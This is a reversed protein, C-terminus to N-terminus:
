RSTPARVSILPEFIRFDPLNETLVPTGYRYAQAAILVDRGRLKAGTVGKSRAHEAVRGYATTAALDFELWVITHDFQTLKERRLAEQARSKARLIGRELEARSLLSAGYQEGPDLTYHQIDILVNSDLLIM